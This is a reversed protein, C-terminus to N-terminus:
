ILSYRWVRTRKGSAPDIFPELFGCFPFDDGERIWYGNMTSPIKIKKMPIPRGEKKALAKERAEKLKKLM